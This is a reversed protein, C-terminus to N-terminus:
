LLIKLKPIPGSIPRSVVSNGAMVSKTTEQSCGPASVIFYGRNMDTSRRVKKLLKRGIYNLLTLTRGNRVDHKLSCAEAPGNAGFPREARPLAMGSQTLTSFGAFKTAIHHVPQM